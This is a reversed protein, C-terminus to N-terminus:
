IRYQYKYTHLNNLCLAKPMLMHSMFEYINCSYLCCTQGWKRNMYQMTTFYTCQLSNHSYQLHSNTVQSTIHHCQPEQHPSCIGLTAMYCCLLIHSRPKSSTHYKCQPGSMPTLAPIIPTSEEM